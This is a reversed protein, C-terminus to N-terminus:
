SHWVRLQAYVEPDSLLDMHNTGYCVSRNSEPIALSKTADRHQGLASAVRVLGDGLLRDNLDGRLKGTTAALAYCEVGEPLSVSRRLDGTSAFRDHPQWDEDLLNGYRLDTIGASRLWGLRALPATYPSIGLATVLSHGGRELPAGHHPTGLFVIRRLVGLWRTGSEAGTRTSNQAAAPAAKQSAKQSAYHCASRTILGGMSHALVSLESLPVPWADVLRELLVAFERGNESIHRGSNYHLYVPTYGRDRALAAAHDHDNRNWQRDNMCLGHVVLLIKGTAEPIAAALADRELSLPQGNRRLQMPIALPNATELLHDGLIGNLASRAADAQPQAVSSPRQGPLFGLTRDLMSRSVGNVLRISGYVRGSIGRARGNTGKGLPPSAAAINAHMAEVIHTVQEVADFLLRSTGRAIESRALKAEIM